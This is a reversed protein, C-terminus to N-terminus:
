RQQTKDMARSRVHVGHGLKNPGNTVKVRGLLGTFPRQFANTDRPLSSRLHRTGGGGPLCSREREKLRRCCYRARLVPLLPESAALGPSIGHVDLEEALQEVRTRGMLASAPDMQKLAAAM